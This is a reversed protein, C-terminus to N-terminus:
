QHRRVDSSTTQIELIQAVNEIKIKRIRGFVVDMANASGPRASAVPVAIESTHRLSQSAKTLM